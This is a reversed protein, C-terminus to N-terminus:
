INKTAEKKRELALREQESNKAKLEADHRAKTLANDRRAKESAEAKETTEQQQKALAERASTEAKARTEQQQKALTAQAAREEDLKIQKQYNLEEQRAAEAREKNATEQKLVSKKNEIEREMYEIERNANGEPDLLSLSADFINKNTKNTKTITPNEKTDEKKTLEKWASKFAEEFRGWLNDDSPKADKPNEVKSDKEAEGQAIIFIFGTERLNGAIKKVGDFIQSLAEQDPQKAAQSTEGAKETNKPKFEIVKAAFSDATVKNDELAM